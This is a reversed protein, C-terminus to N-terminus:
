LSEFLHILVKNSNEIAEKLAWNKKNRETVYNSIGRIQLYPIKKSNAVFHLAAGEMSEVEAHYKKQLITAWKPDTTIQNITVGTVQQLRTRKLLVKNKNFLMKNYYPSNNPKTLALDFM